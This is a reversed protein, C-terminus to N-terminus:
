HRDSRGHSGHDNRGGVKLYKELAPIFLKAFEEVFSDTINQTDVLRNFCSTDDFNCIGLLGVYCVTSRGGRDYGPFMPLKTVDM